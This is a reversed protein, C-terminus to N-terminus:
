HVKNHVQEDMKKYCDEWYARFHKQLDIACAPTIEVQVAFKVAAIVSSPMGNRNRHTYNDRPDFLRAVDYRQAKTLSKLLGRATRRIIKKSEAM